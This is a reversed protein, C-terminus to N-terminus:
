QPLSFHLHINLTRHTFDLRIYKKGYLYQYLNFEHMVYIVHQQKKDFDELYVFLIKPIKIKILSKEGQLSLEETM